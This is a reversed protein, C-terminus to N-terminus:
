YLKKRKWGIILGIIGTILLLPFGILVSNPTLELRSFITILVMILGIIEWSKDHEWRKKNELVPTKNFLIKFTSWDWIILLITALLMSGTIVPTYNFDYSITVFFINAIVTLFLLAGLKAYRQTMLLFGALFQGIGIFKWYIGSQYMTEFYHWASNIPNSAGSDATFRLGQIKVIAAFVFAFGLMYRLYIIFLQPLTKDKM